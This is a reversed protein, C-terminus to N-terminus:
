GLFTSLNNKVSGWFSQPKEQKQQKSQDAVQVPPQAAPIVIPYPVVMPQPGFGMSPSNYSPAPEYFDEIQYRVSHDNYDGSNLRAPARRRPSVPLTQEEEDDDSESEVSQQKSGNMEVDDNNNSGQPKSQQKVQERLKQLEDERERKLRAKKARANALQQKKMDSIPKKPKQIEPQQPQIPVTPQMVIDTM